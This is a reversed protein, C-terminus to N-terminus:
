PRFLIPLDLNDAWARYACFLLCIEENAGMRAMGPKHREAMGLGCPFDTLRQLALPIIDVTWGPEPAVRGCIKQSLRLRHIVSLIWSWKKRCDVVRLNLVM